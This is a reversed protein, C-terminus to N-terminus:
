AKVITKYGGIARFGQSAYLSRAVTNPAAVQLFAGHAGQGAAWALLSEMLLRGLGKGRMAQDLVVSGIEAWGRDIACMAFGVSQGETALTAFAAPVRIRGVIAALHDRNRKDPSQHASVGALWGAGPASDLTVCAAPTRGRHAALDLIMIHAEDRIRYGRALLLPEVGPDCVPTVRVAPPLDAARYLREIEALLADDMRAGQVVASASNARGSYGNAFRVVWGDMFLTEVAPWVNVLREETARVIELDGV